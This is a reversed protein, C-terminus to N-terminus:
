FLQKGAQVAIERLRDLADRYRRQVESRKMRFRKAVQTLTQGRLCILTVTTRERPDLRALLKEASESKEELVLEEDPTRTREAALREPEGIATERSVNRTKKGADTKIQYYAQMALWERTSQWNEPDFKRYGNAIGFLASELCEEYSMIEPPVRVKGVAQKALHLIHEDSLREAEM